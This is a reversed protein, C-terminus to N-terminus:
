LEKKSTLHISKSGIWGITGEPLLVPLWDTQIPLIYVKEKAAVYKLHKASSSPQAMISTGSKVIGLTINGAALSKLSSTLHDTLYRMENWAERNRNDDEQITKDLSQIEEQLKTYNEQARDANYKESTVGYEACNVQYEAQSMAYNANASKQSLDNAKNNAEKENAVTIKYDNDSKTQQERKLQVENKSEEVLLMATGKAKTADASNGNGNGNNVREIENNAYRLQNEADQLKNEAKQLINSTKDVANLALQENKEATNAMECAQKGEKGINEALQKATDRNAKAKEFQANATTLKAITENKRMSAGSLAKEKKTLTNSDDKISAASVIIDSLLERKHAYLSREWKRAYAYIGMRKEFVHVTNNWKTVTVPLFVLVHIQGDSEPFSLKISKQTIEGECQRIGHGVIQDMTNGHLSIAMGDIDGVIHLTDISYGQPKNSDASVVQAFGEITTKVQTLRLYILSSSAKHMYGGTVNTASAALGSLLFLIGCLIRLLLSPSTTYSPLKLTSM